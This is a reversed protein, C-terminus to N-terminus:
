FQFLFNFYVFLIYILKVQLQHEYQPLKEIAAAQSLIINKYRELESHLEDLQNNLRQTEQLDRDLEM